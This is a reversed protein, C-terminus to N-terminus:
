WSGVMNGDGADICPIPLDIWGEKKLNLEVQAGAPLAEKLDVSLFITITEGTEFIVPMPTIDATIDAVEPSNSCLGYEFDRMTWRKPQLIM